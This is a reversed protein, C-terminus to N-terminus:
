DSSVVAGAGPPEVFAVDVACGGSASGGDDIDEAWVGEASGLPPDAAEAKAGAMPSAGAGAGDCPSGGRPGTSSGSKGDWNLVVNSCSGSTALPVTIMTSFSLSSGGGADSVSATSILFFYSPVLLPARNALTDAFSVIAEVISFAM